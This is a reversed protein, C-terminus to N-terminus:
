CPRDGQQDLRYDTGQFVKKEMQARFYPDDVLKLREAVAKAISQSKFIGVETNIAM